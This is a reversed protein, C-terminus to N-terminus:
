AGSVASAPAPASPPLPQLPQPQLPQPQQPASVPASSGPAPNLRAVWDVLSDLVARGHGNAALESNVFAVVVCQRGSADPVYGAIATVNRLTGTKLRARGAAPSEHLRRRMTGDVAVIPISSQFEPAWNSRLGAQLVAGMQIPTIRELRSLGSGNDLVLGRDDIGHQNMWARVAADARALTPVASASDTGAGAGMALGATGGALAPKFVQPRSGLLPDAELAGLSLFILRALTNDSPKNTDRVIEPLARSLHDALLRTSAPTTGETTDGSISGGLQQWAARFLRDLYTQRDIVSIANVTECNKPFTGHLMIKIGGDPQPVAEPPKWGSEWDVCAANVLKMDSDITVGQLDPQLALKLKGGTSRMDIQLLNKNVMAADPIVNYAAEPSDDFPPANLDLRAPNFVQRDVVLRGDIKRIGANRLKRLMGTLTETTFDADAGGRLYLDGALIDGHLEGASRLETRSRFVPGLRELGVLTTVLKMTSAPQMPHDALHSLITQNDRLVLASLADEPIHNAQMVYAVPEPLQAHAPLTTLLAALLMASQAASQTVSRAPRSVFSFRRAM